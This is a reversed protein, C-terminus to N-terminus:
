CKALTERKAPVNACHNAKRGESTECTVKHHQLLAPVPRAELDTSICVAILCLCVWM